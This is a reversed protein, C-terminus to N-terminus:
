ISIGVTCIPIPYRHIPSPPLPPSPPFGFAFKSKSRTLGSAVQLFGYVAIIICPLAIVGFSVYDMHEFYQTIQEM